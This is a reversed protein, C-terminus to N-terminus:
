WKEENKHKFLGNIKDLIIMKKMKINLYVM